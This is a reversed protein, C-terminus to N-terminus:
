HRWHTPQYYVYMSMDPFFFLNGQKVLEQENREGAADVVKTKIVIDSPATNIPQWVEMM